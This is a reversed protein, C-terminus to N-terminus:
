VVGLVGDALDVGVRSGGPCNLDHGSQDVSPRGVGDEAAFAPWGDDEASYAGSV